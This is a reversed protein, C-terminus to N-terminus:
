LQYESGGCCGSEFSKISTSRNVQYGRPELIADIVRSHVAVKHQMAQLRFPHPTDYCHCGCKKVETDRLHENTKPAEDEEDDTSVATDALNQSGNGDVGAVLVPQVHVSKRGRRHVKKTRKAARQIKEQIKKNEEIIAPTFGLKLTYCEPLHPLPHYISKGHVISVSTRVHAFHTLPVYPERRLV